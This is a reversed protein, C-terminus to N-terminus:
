LTLMFLKTINQWACEPCVQLFYLADDIHALYEVVVEKGFVLCWELWKRDLFFLFSISMFLTALLHPSIVVIM